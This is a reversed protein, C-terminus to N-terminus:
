RRGSAEYLLSPGVLLLPRGPQATIADRISALPGGDLLKVRGDARTMGLEGWLADLDPAVSKSKWTDYLERLVPVGVARDGMGLAREPTWTVALTGGGAHIARIADQLGFRNATRKRIEVDAILWFLAGGYYRRDENPTDELGRDSDGPLGQEMIRSFHRWVEIPTVERVQARAISEVYTALGEHLWLHTDDLDPFGLHAMEHVLTSDRKLTRSTTRRGIVLRIDADPNANAEGEMVENGRGPQLRIKVEAVPFKGFYTATARASRLVWDVVDQESFQFESPSYALVLKTDGFTLTRFGHAQGSPTPEAGPQTRAATRANAGAPALVGIALLLVLARLVSKM